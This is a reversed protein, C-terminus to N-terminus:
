YGFLVHADDVSLALFFRNYLLFLSLFSCWSILFSVSSCVNPCTGVSCEVGISESYATEDELCAAMHPTDRMAADLSKEIEKEVINEEQGSDESHCSLHLSSRPPLTIGERMADVCASVEDINARDKPDIILMRQILEEMDSGFPHRPPILYRGSLSALHSDDDFCNQLFCMTYLTCGLAWIDTKSTLEEVMHLDIMEPSRYMQTTSSRIVRNAEEREKATQVPVNGIIASGFDCLKVNWRCHRVHNRQQQNENIITKNHDIKTTFYNDHNDNNNYDLLINEPKLDRHVISIIHSHSRHCYDEKQPINHSNKNEDEKRLIGDFYPSSSPVDGWKHMYSVADVVQRFIDLIADRDLYGAALTSSTNKGVRGCFIADDWGGREKTVMRGRKWKRGLSFRRHQASKSSEKSNGDNGQEIGLMRLAYKKRKSISTPTTTSTPQNSDNGGNQIQSICRDAPFAAADSFMKTRKKKMQLLALNRRKLILDMLSGGSCHEMLLLHMEAAEVAGHNKLSTEIGGHVDNSRFLDVRENDISLSSSSSVGGIVKKRLFASSPSLASSRSRVFCSDLMTVVNPHSSLTRLIVAEDMARKKHEISGGVASAKLVVLQRQRKKGSRKQKMDKKGSNSNNGISTASGVESHFSGNNRGLKWSPLQWSKPSTNGLGNDSKTPPRCEVAATNCYGDKEQPASLAKPSFSAASSSCTSSTLILMPPSLDQQEAKQQQELLPARRQQQQQQQEQNTTPISNGGNCRRAVYVFASGGEGIKKKVSLVHTGVTLRRGKLRDVRM